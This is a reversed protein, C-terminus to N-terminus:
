RSSNAKIAPLLESGADTKLLYGQAGNSLAARVIETDSHQTLFLLKTNPAVQCLWNEAEIGNLKPLGIDLLILDPKLEEARHVAELGDAAEGIVQFEPQAELTSVSFDRWLDCDDVVLIRVQSMIARQIDRVTVRLSDRLNPYCKLGASFTEKNFVPTRQQFSDQVPFHSGSKFVYQLKGTNPVGLRESWGLEVIDVIKHCKIENRVRPYGFGLVQSGQDNVRFM